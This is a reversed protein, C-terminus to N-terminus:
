DICEVQNPTVFLYRQRAWRSTSRITLTLRGRATFAQRKLVRGAQYRHRGRILLVKKGDLKTQVNDRQTKM